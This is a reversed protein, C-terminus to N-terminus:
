ATLGIEFDAIRERARRFLEGPVAEVIMKLIFRESCPEVLEVWRVCVVIAVRQESCEVIERLLTGLVVRGVSRVTQAVPLETWRACHSQTPLRRDRVPVCQWFPVADPNSEPMGDTPHLMPGRLPEEQSSSGAM